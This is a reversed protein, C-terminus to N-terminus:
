SAKSICCNKASGNKLSEKPNIQFEHSERHTRPNEIIKYNRLIEKSKTPNRQIQTEKFKKRKAEEQALKRDREEALKPNYETPKATKFTHSNARKKTLRSAMSAMGFWARDEARTKVACM